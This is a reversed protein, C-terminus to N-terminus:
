GGQAFEGRAGGSVALLYKRNTNSLYKRAVETMGVFRAFRGPLFKSDTVRM